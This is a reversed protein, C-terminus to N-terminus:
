LFRIALLHLEGEVQNVEKDYSINLGQMIQEFSECDSSSAYVLAYSSETVMSLVKLVLEDVENIRINAMDLSIFGVKFRSVGIDKLDEVTRKSILHENVLGYYEDVNSDLSNVYTTVPNNGVRSAVFSATGGIHVHCLLKDRYLLGLQQVGYNFSALVTFPLKTKDLLRYFVKFYFSDLIPQPLLGIYKILSHNLNLQGQDSIQMLDDFRSLPFITFNIKNTFDILDM